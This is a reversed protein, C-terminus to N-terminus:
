SSHYKVTELAVLFMGHRCIPIVGWPQQAAAYISTYGTTPQAAVKKRFNAQSNTISVTAAQHNDPHTDLSLLELDLNHTALIQPSIKIWPAIRCHIEARIVM